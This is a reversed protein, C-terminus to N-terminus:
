PLAAFKAKIEDMRTRNVGMDGYGVRSASRFQIAQVADDFEFEVDDVFRFILSQFEVHLYNGDDEVVKTRPMADIVALLRQRADAMSGTYALPPAYHVTDSPEARSSVCNPSDPCPAMRVRTQERPTPSGCQAVLVLTTIAAVAVTIWKFFPM